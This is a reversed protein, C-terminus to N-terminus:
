PAGAIRLATLRRTYRLGGDDWTVTVAILTPKAHWADQDGASGYPVAHVRWHLAGAAEGERDGLRITTGQEALLSQLLGAALTENRVQRARDLSASIVQLLVALSVALITLAVLVEVLTFGASAPRNM